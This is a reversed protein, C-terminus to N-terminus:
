GVLLFNITFFKPALMVFLVIDGGERLSFQKIIQGVNRIYHETMLSGCFRQRDLRHDDDKVFVDDTEDVLGEEVASAHVLEKPNLMEGVSPASTSTAAMKYVERPQQTTDLNSITLSTQLLVQYAGGGGVVTDDDTTVDNDTVDCCAVVASENDTVDDAYVVASKNGTIVDNISVATETCINVDSTSSVASQRPPSSHLYTTLDASTTKTVLMGAPSVAM